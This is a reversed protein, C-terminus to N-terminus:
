TSITLLLCQESYIIPKETINPSVVLFWTKRRVLLNKSLHKTLSLPIYHCFLDNTGMDISVTEIYIHIAVVHPQSPTTLM